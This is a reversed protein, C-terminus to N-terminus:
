SLRSIFREYGKLLEMDSNIQQELLQLMQRQLRRGSMLASLGIDSHLDTDGHRM